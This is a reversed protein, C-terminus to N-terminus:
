PTVVGGAPIALNSGHRMTNGHYDTLEPLRIARRAKGSTEHAPRVRVVDRIGGPVPPLELIHAAGVVGENGVVVGPVGGGVAFPEVVVQTQEWVSGALRIPTERPM